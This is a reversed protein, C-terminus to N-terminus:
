GARPEGVGERVFVGEPVFRAVGYACLALWGVAFLWGGVVDTFWHVGLYIRSVGVLVAWVGVAVRLVAGGRPARLVLAGILLGAVIASTTTHGSPFAWNSAGTAWGATPPRDRHAFEMVGYRVAQGAGLCAAGLVAALLRGRPGRGAILAALVVLVYPIFGTGTATVGRALTLALAPRHAVSWDYLGQDPALPGSADEVFFLLVAFGACAGLGVSGALETVDKRNM